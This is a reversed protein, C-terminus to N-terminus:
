ASRFKERRRYGAEQATRGTSTASIARLGGTHAARPGAPLQRVLLAAVAGTMVALTAWIPFEGAADVHGSRVALASNVSLVVLYMSALIGAATGFWCGHPSHFWLLGGSAILIPVMVTLDLAAVLKFADTNIPPAHGLFVVDVWMVLWVTALGAGVCLFYVGATQTLGSRASVAFVRRDIAALSMLLTVASVLCLAVYLPFFANLEAGFLYYAYNYVAYALLGLQLVRARPSGRVAFRGAVVLAPVAAVLTVWDNGFWTERIWEVDRYQTRFILGLAAQIGMLGAVVNALSGPGAVARSVDSREFTTSSM